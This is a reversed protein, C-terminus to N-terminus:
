RREEQTTVNCRRFWCIWMRNDVSRQLLHHQYGTTYFNKSLIGRSRSSLRLTKASLLARAFLQVKLVRQRGDYRRSDQQKGWFAAVIILYKKEVLGQIVAFCISKM